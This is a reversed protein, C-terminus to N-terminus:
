QFLKERSALVSKVFKIMIPIYSAVYILSSTILICKKKRRPLLTGVLIGLSFLCIKILAMDKWDCEKIYEDAYNLWDKM